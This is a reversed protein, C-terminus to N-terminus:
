AADIAMDVFRQLHLQAAVTITDTPGARHKAVIFDAEGARPSEKDYYDERYLLIVIDADQEISGSERLDSLQPKKDQRTEPNRNLQCIVVVPIELERALIKLGGTLEGLERARNDSRGMTKMIQLYDVVVLDLGHRQQVRRAKGRIDALTLGGTDDLFMPAPDISEGIVDALRAWENDTLRGERIRMYPIRAEASAIRDAIEDRGMEISFHLAPRRARVATHRLLDIGFVSKGLGPRGAVIVLQGPRLGTTLRDLDALGTSLGRLHGTHQSAAEIRDLLDTMLTGIRVPDTTARGTTAQHLTQQAHDVAAATDDTPTYGVQTIHTGARILRRMTATDAIKKAYWAANAAVPVTHICDTLYTPGGARGLDGTITLRDAVAIPDVPASHAYNHTIAQHITAHKPLYYDAPSVLDTVDPIADATLMMAGLVAQEANTDHPPTRDLDNM